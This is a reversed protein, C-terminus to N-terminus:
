NIHRMIDRKLAVSNNEERLYKTPNPFQDYILFSKVVEFHLFLENTFIENFFQQIFYLTPPIDSHLKPDYSDM